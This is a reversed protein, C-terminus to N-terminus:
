IYRELQRFPFSNKKNKNLLYPSYEAITIELCNNQLIVNKFIDKIPIIYQLDKENKNTKIKNIYIKWVKDVYYNIKMWKNGVLMELNGELINRKNRDFIRSCIDKVFLITLNNTNMIKTNLYDLKTDQTKSEIEQVVNIESYLLHRKM